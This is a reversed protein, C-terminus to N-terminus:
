LPTLAVEEGSLLALVNLTSMFAFFYTAIIKGWQEPTKGESPPPLIGREEGFCM